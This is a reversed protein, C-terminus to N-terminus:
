RSVQNLFTKFGEKVLVPNTSVVRSYLDANELSDGSRSISVNRLEM